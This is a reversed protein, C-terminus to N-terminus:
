RVPAPNPLPSKPAFAREELADRVGARHKEALDWHQAQKNWSIVGARHLRVLERQAGHGSRRTKEELGMHKALTQTRSPGELLIKLAKAIWPPISDALVRAMARDDSPDTEARGHLYARRVAVLALNEVLLKWDPYWPALRQLLEAYYLFNPPARFEPPDPPKLGARDELVYRTAAALEDSRRRRDQSDLARLPDPSRALRTRIRLARQLICQAQTLRHFMPYREYDCEVFLYRGGEDLMAKMEAEIERWPSRARLRALSCPTWQNGFSLWADPCCRDYWNTELVLWHDATRPCDMLAGLLVEVALRDEISFDRALRDALDDIRGTWDLM